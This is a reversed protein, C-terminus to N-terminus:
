LGEDSRSFACRVWFSCAAVDLYGQTRRALGLVLAGTDGTLWNGYSVLFFPRPLLRHLGIWLVAVVFSERSNMRQGLHLFSFHFHFLIILGRETDVMDQLPTRPPTPLVWQKGSM